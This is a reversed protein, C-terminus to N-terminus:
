AMSLPQLNKLMERVMQTVCFAHRFNHFPTSNYNRYVEILFNQLVNIQFFFSAVILFSEIDPWLASLNEAVFLVM